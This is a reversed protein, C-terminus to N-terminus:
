LMFHHTILAPRAREAQRAPPGDRGRGRQPAHARGRRTFYLAMALRASVAAALASDGPGLSRLAEQL